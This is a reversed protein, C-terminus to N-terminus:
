SGEAPATGEGQNGFGKLHHGQVMEKYFAPTYPCSFRFSIKVISCWILFWKYHKHPFCYFPDLSQSLKPPYVCSSSISAVENTEPFEPVRKLRERNTVTPEALAPTLHVPNNLSHFASFGRFAFCGLSFM